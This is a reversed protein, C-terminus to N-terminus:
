LSTVRDNEASRVPKESLASNQERHLAPPLIFALNSVAYSLVTQKTGQRTKCRKPEFDLPLKFANVTRVLQVRFIFVYLPSLLNM